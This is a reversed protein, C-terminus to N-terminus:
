KYDFYELIETLHAAEDYGISYYKDADVSSWSYSKITFGNGNDEVRMIKKNNVSNEVKSSMLWTKNGKQKIHSM